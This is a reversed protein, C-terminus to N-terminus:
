SARALAPGAEVHGVPPEVANLRAATTRLATDFVARRRGANMLDPGMVALDEATPAFVRVKTGTAVLRRIERDLRRTIHQRLHQELRATATRPQVPGQSSMPALVLVEDLHERVLVDANTVSVAGGDIYRRGAIRAPPFYVPASCSATVAQPLSAQPAGPRGFIVRRGSDFDMAVVRIRPQVPWSQAGQFEEILKGVPALSGRGRPALAAVATRVTHRDPRGLTRAVLLLNGPVPIPRPIDMLARDLPDVVTSQGTLATVPGAGGDSSQEGSLREAMEQPSVGCGILAALVSGASTGVVVDLGTPDLREVDALACLAGVAWAGGLAAGAGIVL